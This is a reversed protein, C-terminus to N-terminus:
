SILQEKVLEDIYEIMNKVSDFPSKERTMARDDTLSIDLNYDVSLVTELDVIVSVLSLSDIKSDQGFLVTDKNVDFKQNEPFTEILANVNDIVVKEILEINM